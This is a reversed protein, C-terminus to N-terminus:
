RSERFSLVDERSFRPSGSPTRFHQLRGEKRWLDVTKTSVRFFAAVEITKLVPPLNDDM